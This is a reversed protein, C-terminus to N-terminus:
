GIFIEVLFNLIFKKNKNLKKQNFSTIGHGRKLHDSGKFIMTEIVCLKELEKKTMDNRDVRHHGLYSYRNYNMDKYINLKRKNYVRNYLYGIGEIENTDNNMELVFVKGNIPIYNSMESPTGYACGRINHTIRYKENEKYTLNNFRTTTLYFIDHKLKLMM